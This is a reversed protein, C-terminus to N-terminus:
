KNIVDISSDWVSKIKWKKISDVIVEYHTEKNYEDLNAIVVNLLINPDIALSIGFNFITNKIRDFSLLPDKFQIFKQKGEPDLAEKKRILDKLTIASTQSEAIYNDLRHVFTPTKITRSFKVMLQFLQTLVREKESDLNGEDEYRTVEPQIQEKAVQQCISFIDSQSKTPATLYLYASYIRYCMEPHEPTPYYPSRQCYELLSRAYMPGFSNIALFDMLIELLWNENALKEDNILPMVAVQTKVYTKFQDMLSQGLCGLDKDVTEFMEHCLIPWMAPNDAESRICTIIYGDDIPHKKLLDVPSIQILSGQVNPDKAIEILPALPKAIEEYFTQTVFRIGQRFVIPKNIGFSQPIELLWYYLEWPIGSEVLLAVSGNFHEATSYASSVLAQYINYIVQDPTLFDGARTEIKSLIVAKRTLSDTLSDHIILLGNKYNSITQVLMKDIKLFPINKLKNKQDDTRDILGDIHEILPTLQV